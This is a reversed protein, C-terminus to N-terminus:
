WKYIVGKCYHCKVRDSDNLFYFGAKALDEKSIFDISWNKFTALRESEFMMKTPDEDQYMKLIESQEEHAIVFDYKHIGFDNRILYKCCSCKASAVVIVNNECQLRKDKAGALTCVLWKFEKPIQIQAKLYFLSDDLYIYENETSPIVFEIIQSSENAALPRHKTIYKQEISTQVVSTRFLDFEPLPIATSSEM